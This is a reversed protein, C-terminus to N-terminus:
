IFFMISINKARTRFGLRVAKKIGIDVIFAFFLTLATYIMLRSKEWSIHHFYETLNDSAPLSIQPLISDIADKGVPRLDTYTQTVAIGLIFFLIILMLNTLKRIIGRSPTTPLHSLIQSAFDSELLEVSQDSLATYISRYQNVTSRCALCSNLHERAETIRASNLVGDLYEQIEEDNLHKADM